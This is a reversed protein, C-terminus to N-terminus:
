TTHKECSGTISASCLKPQRYLRVKFAHDKFAEWNKSDYMTPQLTAQKAAACGGLTDLSASIYGGDGLILNRFCWFLLVCLAFFHCPCVHLSPALTHLQSDGQTSCSGDLIHQTTSVLGDQQKRFSVLGFCVQLM